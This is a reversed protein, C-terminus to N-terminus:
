ILGFLKQILLNGDTVSQVKSPNEYSLRKELRAKNSGVKDSTSVSAILDFMNVYGLLNKGTQTKYGRYYPVVNEGFAARYEESDIYADIDADYGQRDIIDSHYVTEEYSEPARGLLHKFNLEHCRYRPANDIFRSKYLESKALVRVFGRVTLDGNRLQSEASVLRESEMIHANGLVHKYISRIVVAIEQESNHDLTFKVPDADVLTPSLGQCISVRDFSSLSSTADLGFSYSPTRVSQTFKAQSHIDAVPVTQESIDPIRSSSDGLISRDVAAGGYQSLQKDSSSAGRLLHFSHTYSAMGKGTQTQYGRFYPVINTGFTQFYEDSDLYSDIEADFGQEVLLQIHQSLEAGREPARGLLHKFNLEVTKLNTCREYFLTRYRESKALTRVFELVTLDNNRLQSEAVSFRESEMLHANGFVQKYAAEIVVDIQCVSDGVFLEVPKQDSFADTYADVISPSGVDQKSVFIEAGIARALQFGKPNFVNKPKTQFTKVLDTQLQSRQSTRISESISRDSSSLGKALDFIRNYGAVNKGTQTAYGVYFPVTDQGFNQDYEPDDLYSDIEAPLGDGVLIELHRSIEEFTDPARGLLHKFNLEIARVNSCSEFFLVRYADSKALARIFEKVSLTGDKFQSEATLMRQSEMLHVNGFVQKYAARILIEKDENSADGYLKVPQSARTAPFTAAAQKANYQQVWESPTVPEALFAPSKYVPIYDEKTLKQQPQKYAQPPIVPTSLPLTALPKIETSIGSLLGAQIQPATNSAISKDSSSAGKILQSSHTFGSVSKGIKTLHGRYYPVLHTGFTQFYEDSDLYSDIEADFGDEALIQIHKSIEANNEPARGLLHKFNLEVSRINPCSEFFLARYRDSNALQRIFELVTINGRRLQSEAVLSRESEMLHANGFVQKYAAHIVLDVDAVSHTGVLEIPQCGSFPTLYNKQVDFDATLPTVARAVEAAKRKKLAVALDFGEPNFKKRSAKIAAPRFLTNNIM